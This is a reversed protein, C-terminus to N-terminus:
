RGLPKAIFRHTMAKVQDPVVATALGQRRHDPHTWLAAVGLWGRALHGRGVAVVEGDTEVSGFARPPRGDLLRTVVAPDADSPRYADFAARWRPDLEETVRVAPHPEHDGLLDALRM